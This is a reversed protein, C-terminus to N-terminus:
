WWMLQYADQLIKWWSMPMHLQFLHWKLYWLQESQYMDWWVTERCLVINCPYYSIKTQTKAKFIDLYHLKNSM